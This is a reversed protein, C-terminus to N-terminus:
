RFMLDYNVAGHDSAGLPRHPDDAGCAGPATVGVPNVSTGNGGFVDDMGALAQDVVKRIKRIPHSAPIRGEVDVYSFM